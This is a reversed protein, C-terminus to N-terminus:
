EALNKLKMYLNFVRLVEERKDKRLPSGDYSNRIEISVEDDTYDGSYNDQNNRVFCHYIEGTAKNTMVYVTDLSRSRRIAWNDM